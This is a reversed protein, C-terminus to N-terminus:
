TENTRTSTFTGFRFDNSRHISSIEIEKGHLEIDEEEDEAEEDNGALERLKESVKISKDFKALINQHQKSRRIDSEDEDQATGTEELKRKKPRKPERSSKKRPANTQTQSASLSSSTITPTNTTAITSKPPVYRAYLGGSM